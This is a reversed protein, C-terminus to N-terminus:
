VPRDGLIAARHMVRIEPLYDLTAYHTSLRNDWFAV